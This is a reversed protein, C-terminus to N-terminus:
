MEKGVTGFTYVTQGHQLLEDAPIPFHYATGPLLKGLRRKDYFGLNVWVFDSEVYREYFLKDMLLPDGDVAPPLGGLGVRSRNIIEAVGSEGLRLKAEALYTDNEVKLYHDVFGSGSRVVNQYRTYKYETYIFWGYGPRTHRGKAFWNNINDYTFYKNFRADPSGAIPGLSVTGEPWPYVAAPDNPAMMNVIKHNVRIWGMDFLAFSNMGNDRSIVKGRWGEEYGVKFDSTIGNAAYNKVKTWDIATAETPNRPSCALLRAGMSNAFKILEVKNFVVGPMVEEPDANEIDSNLIEIAKNIRDLSFAILEKYDKTNAQYDFSQADGSDETFLYAKDYLLGLNGYLMAQLLYAHAQVRKTYDIKNVVVKFEPDKLSRLINTVVPIGSYYNYWAGFNIIIVPDPTQGNFLERRPQFWMTGSGWGATGATFVEANAFGIAPSAAISANYWAGYGNKIQAFYQDALDSTEPQNENEVNIDEFVDSCSLSVLLFSFLVLFYKMNRITTM